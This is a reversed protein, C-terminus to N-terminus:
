VSYALDQSFFGSLNKLSILNHAQSYQRIQVNLTKLFTAVQRIHGCIHNNKSPVNMTCRFAECQRRASEHCWM